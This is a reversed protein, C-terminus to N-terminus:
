GEVSAIEWTMHVQADQANPNAVRVFLDFFPRTAGEALFWSTAPLDARWRWHRSVLAV